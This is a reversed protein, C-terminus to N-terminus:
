VLIYYCDALILCPIVTKVTPKAALINVLFLGFLWIYIHAFFHAPSPM